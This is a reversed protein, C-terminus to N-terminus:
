WHEPLSEMLNHSGSNKYAGTAKEDFTLWLGGFLTDSSMGGELGSRPYLKIVYEKM